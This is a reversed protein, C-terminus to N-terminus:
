RDSSNHTSFYDLYWPLAERLGARLDHSPAYGLLAQAKSIDAQSHRVDGARFPGYVPARKYHIKLRELEDKLIIFLENLTTRGGVAMNYVQDRAVSNSTAALINAQVANAVYSFDRSTEGDGNIIIDEDRLMALIWKPIVAAYTSNPDQRQGFVNFYRLGICKFGYASAYNQSYLENVYKTVAYPSLQKGIRSEIKPLNPEDGYTSSSSAYTFSEVKALRAAELINLFGTANVAHTTIPDKLSRPVSGLGAQHLVNNVGQMARACTDFERIDGDIVELKPSVKLAALNERRSTSYDDLSRVRQGYTLLTEILNSGIFGAGGTVLWLGRDQSLLQEIM